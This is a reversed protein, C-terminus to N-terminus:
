DLGFGIAQAADLVAAHGIETNSKGTVETDELEIDTSYIITGQDDTVKVSFFNM